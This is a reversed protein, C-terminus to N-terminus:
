FSNVNAKIHCNLVYWYPTQENIYNNFVFIYIYIHNFLSNEKKNKINMVNFVYELM